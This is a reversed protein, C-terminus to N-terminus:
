EKKVVKELFRVAEVVGFKVMEVAIFWGKEEDGFVRKEIQDQM